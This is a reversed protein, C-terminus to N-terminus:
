TRTPCEFKDLAAAFRACVQRGTARELLRAVVCFRSRDDLGTVLEADRGRSCSGGKIDLQWLEMPAAREWHL